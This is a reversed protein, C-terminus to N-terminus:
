MLREHLRWPTADPTGGKEVADVWREVAEYAFENDCNQVAAEYDRLNKRNNYIHVWEPCRGMMENIFLKRLLTLEHQRLDREYGLIDKSDPQRQTVRHPTLPEVHRDRAQQLFAPFQCAEYLPLCSVCAWDIVGCLVGDKDVIINDLSIADHWLMTPEHPRDRKDAADQDQDEDTLEDDEDVLERNPECDPTPFFNRGLKRLRIALNLMKAATERHDKNSTTEGEFQGSFAIVAYEAVQKVIREKANRTVAQWCQSLPKGDIRDMLIWEFGIHNNRTSDYCIVIPVPLRTNEHIWNLTAVESETKSKPCVPLSIRMIYHKEEYSVSYLKNYVGDWLHQVHYEKSQNIFEKLTLVISDITPVVTWEARTSFPNGDNTWQLSDAPNDHHPPIAETNISTARGKHEPDADHLGIDGYSVEGVNPTM